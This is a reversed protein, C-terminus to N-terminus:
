YKTSMISQTLQGPHGMSSAVAAEGAEDRPSSVRGPQRRWHGGAMHGCGGGLVLVELFTRRSASVNVVARTFELEVLVLCNTVFLPEFVFVGHAM